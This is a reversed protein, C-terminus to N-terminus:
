PPGCPSRYPALVQDADPPSAAPATSGALVLRSNLAGVAAPERSAPPPPALALRRRPRKANHYAVYEGLVVRLHQENLILV